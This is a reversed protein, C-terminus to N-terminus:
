SACALQAIVWEACNRAYVGVMKRGDNTSKGDLGLECLGSAFAKVREHVETYTEWVYPGDDIRTGLFQGQPAETMGKKFADYYTVVQPHDPHTSMLPKGHPTKPNRYVASEGKGHTKGPM